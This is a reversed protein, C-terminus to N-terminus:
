KMWAPPASGGPLDVSWLKELGSRQSKLIEVILAHAEPDTKLKPLSQELKQVLSNQNDCLQAFLFEIAVYNMRPFDHDYQGFDLSHARDQLLAVIKGADQRQRESLSLVAGKLPAAQPASWLWAELVYQVLSRHLEVLLDNLLANSSAATM